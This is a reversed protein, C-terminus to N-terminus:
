AGDSAKPAKKPPESATKKSADPSTTKKYDTIYFGTGKFILGSGAGIQREVKGKCYICKTLPKETMRQLQDFSKKCKLCKYEYTPM